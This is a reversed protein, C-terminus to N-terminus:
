YIKDEIKSYLYASPAVQAIGNTSNLIENIWNQFDM